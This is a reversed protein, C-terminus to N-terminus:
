CEMEVPTWGFAPSLEDISVMKEDDGLVNTGLYEPQGQGSVDINNNELYIFGDEPQCKWSAKQKYVMMGNSASLAKMRLM